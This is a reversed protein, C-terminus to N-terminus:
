GLVIILIKPNRARPQSPSIAPNAGYDNVNPTRLNSYDTPTVSINAPAEKIANAGADQRPVEAGCESCFDLGASLANGCSSCIIM